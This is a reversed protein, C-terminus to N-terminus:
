ENYGLIMIPICVTDGDAGVNPAIELTTDNIYTIIRERVRAEGDGVSYIMSIRTGNGKPIRGTSLRELSSSSTSGRYIIEYYKYNANNLNIRIASSIAESPNANEWLKQIELNKIKKNFEKLLKDNLQM